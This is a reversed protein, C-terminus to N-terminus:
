LLEDKNRKSINITIDMFSPFGPLSEFIVLEKHYFACFAVNLAFLVLFAYSSILLLLSAITCFEFRKKKPGICFIAAVAYIAYAFVTRVLIGETIWSAFAVVVFIVRLIIFLLSKLQEKEFYLM